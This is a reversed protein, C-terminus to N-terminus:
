WRSQSSRVAGDDAEVVAALDPRLGVERIIQLPYVNGHEDHVAIVILDDRNRIGRQERDFQQLSALELDVLPIRVTHQRGM